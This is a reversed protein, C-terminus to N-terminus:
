GFSNIGEISDVYKLVIPKEGIRWVHSDNMLNDIVPKLKRNHELDWKDGIYEKVENSCNCAMKCLEYITM